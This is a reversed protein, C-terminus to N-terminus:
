TPAGVQAGRGERALRNACAAEVLGVTRRDAKGLRAVEIEMALVSGDGSFLDAEISPARMAARHNALLEAHARAELGCQAARLLAQESLLLNKLLM